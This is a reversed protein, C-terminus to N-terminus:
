LITRSFSSPSSSSLIGGYLNITSLYSVTHCDPIFYYPPASDYINCKRKKRTCNNNLDKNKLIHLSASPRCHAFFINELSGFHGRVPSIDQCMVSAKQGTVNM